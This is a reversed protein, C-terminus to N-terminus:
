YRPVKRDKGDVPSNERWEKGVFRWNMMDGREGRNSRVEKEGKRRKPGGGDKERWWVRDKEFRIIGKKGEENIKFWAEGRDEKRSGRSREIRVGIGRLDREKEEPKNGGWEREGSKEDKERPRKM